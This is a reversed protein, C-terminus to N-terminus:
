ARLRDIAFFASRYIYGDATGEPDPIWDGQKHKVGSHGNAKVPHWNFRTLYQGRERIEQDPFISRPETM